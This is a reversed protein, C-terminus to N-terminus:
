IIIDFLYIFTLNYKFLGKGGMVGEGEGKEFWEFGTKQNLIIWQEEKMQGMAKDVRMEIDCRSLLSRTGQNIGENILWKIWIKQVHAKFPINFRVDVPQCLFTCGGPIQKVEIGLEQINHVISAMMHCQYSDLILLLIIDKSAM